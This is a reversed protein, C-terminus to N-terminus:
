LLIEFDNELQYDLTPKQSKKLKKRAWKRYQNTIRGGWIMLKGTEKNYLRKRQEESFNIFSGQMVMYQNTIDELFPHNLPLKSELIERGDPTLEYLLRKKEITTLNKENQAFLSALESIPKSYIQLLTQADKNKLYPFLPNANLYVKKLSTLKGFSQPLRSIKNRGLHLHSLNALNGISEPLYSILNKEFSVGALKSLNGFSEPIFSIHNNDLSLGTLNTLNGIWSPITELGCNSLNLNELKFLKSIFDPLIKLPNKLPERILNRSFIFTSLNKLKGLESPLHEIKADFLQLERLNQLNSITPPIYELNETSLILVELNKLHGIWGDISQLRSRSIYIKQLSKLNKFSKPYKQNTCGNINLEILHNLDGISDPLFYRRGGAFLNLKLVHGDAIFVGSASSKFHFNERLPFKNFPETTNFAQLVAAEERAVPTGFYDVFECDSKESLSKGSLPKRSL